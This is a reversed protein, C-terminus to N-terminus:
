AMSAVRTWRVIVHTTEIESKLGNPGNGTFVISRVPELASATPSRCPPPSTPAPRRNNHARSQNVQKTCTQGVSTTQDYLILVESVVVM